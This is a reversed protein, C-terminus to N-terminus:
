CPVLRCECADGSEEGAIKRTGIQLGFHHPEHKQCATWDFRLAHSVIVHSISCFLLLEHDSVPLDGYACLQPLQLLLIIRVEREVGNTFSIGIPLISQLKLSLSTQGNNCCYYDETVHPIM